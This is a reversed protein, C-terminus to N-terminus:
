EDVDDWLHNNFNSLLEEFDEVEEVEEPNNYVNMTSVYQMLPEGGDLVELMTEPKFYTRKMM